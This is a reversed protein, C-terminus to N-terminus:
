RTPVVLVTKISHRIVKESVSGILFHELGTRGHTGVVILDADWKKAIELIEDEPIGEVIFSTVKHNSFVTDILKKHSLEFSSKVSNEIEMEVSANENIGIGGMGMIDNNMMIITREVVSVLAVETDLQEVLQLATDAVKESESENSLAILIRKIIKM